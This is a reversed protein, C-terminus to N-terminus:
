TPTSRPRPTRGGAPPGAVLEVALVQPMPVVERPPAIAFAAFISGHMAVSLIMANRLRRRHDPGHEDHWGILDATM